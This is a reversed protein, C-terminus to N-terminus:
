LLLKLGSEVARYHAAASYNKAIHESGNNRLLLGLEPNEHLRFIQECFQKSTQAKLYHIDPILGIGEVAKETAIIPRGVSLAELVKIRTGGGEFIPLILCSSKNYVPLLESPNPILIAEEMRQILTKMTKGPNRGSIILKTEPLVSKVEPFVKRALFRVAEKNPPYGLHGIFLLNFVDGHDAVSLAECWKPVPNPVVYIPSKIGMDRACKADDASCVWIADALRGAKLDAQYADEWDNRHFVPTLCRLLKPIRAKDIDRLLQHEINHFDVVLKTTPFAYRLPEILPLLAVGELVIVTPSILRLADVVSTITVDDISLVTRAIRKGKKYPQSFADMAISNTESIARMAEHISINRIEGGTPQMSPSEIVIQAFAM